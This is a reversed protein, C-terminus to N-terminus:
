VRAAFVAYGMTLTCLWGVNFVMSRIPFVTKGSIMRVAHAIRLWFFVIAAWYTLTTFGLPSSTSTRPATFGNSYKKSNPKSM